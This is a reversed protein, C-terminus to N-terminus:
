FMPLVRSALDVQRRSVGVRLVIGHIKNSHLECLGIYCFCSHLDYVGDNAEELGVYGENLARSVFVQQCLVRITGCRSVRRV